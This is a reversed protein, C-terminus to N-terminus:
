SSCTLKVCRHFEPAKEYHQSKEREQIEAQRPSFFIILMSAQWSAAAHHILTELKSESMDKSDALAESLIVSLPQDSYAHESLKLLIRADENLDIEAKEIAEQIM